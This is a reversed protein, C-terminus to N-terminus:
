PLVTKRMFTYAIAMYLFYILFFVGLCVALISAPSTLGVLTGPETMGGLTLVFPVAILVPPVAPMAYYVALIWLLTKEMEQRDMGLKELLSFQQRLRNAESLQQVTLVTAATLALTLALYFLPFVLMASSFAMTRISDDKGLLMDFSSSAAYSGNVAWGVADDLASYQAETVPERTQAAVARRIVPCAAAVSDPVVLLAQHGNGNWNNQGFEETYIADFTLSQGGQTIPGAWQELPKKLYPMCHISYTGPKTEVPPLELMARLAAYDSQAMLVEGNYDHDYSFPIYDSHATLYRIMGNDEGQYLSYEWFATLGIHSDTFDLFSQIKEEQNTVFLLDFGDREARGQFIGQFVMGAGETLVTATFLVSVTAMTVGMAALKASLSRFILLRQRQYKRAPDKEFYAPIASSFGAFFGYTGVLIGGAGLIGLWMEGALLLATGAAILLVSLVFLTKRKGGARVMAQENRRDLEMLERVKMRRLGRGSRGLAFLYIAAFYLLTLGVARPSFTFAFRYPTCFLTMLVARLGQYILCGLPLGLLLAVAGVATNELFFLKKVQRREMGVLLYTGLERGRRSFMFGTTYSVLWGVIALVVMSALVIVLPLNSLSNSLTSLEQSFVLGNFAYLMAAVLTMTVFYVGYDRAQRRANRLALRCFTM